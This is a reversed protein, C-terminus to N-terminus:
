SRDGGKTAPDTSAAVREMYGDDSLREFELEVAAEHADDILEITADVVPSLAEDIHREDIHELLQAAYATKRRAEKALEVDHREDAQEHHEQHAATDETDKNM